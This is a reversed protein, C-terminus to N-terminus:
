CLILMLMREKEDSNNNKNNDKNNNNSTTTSAPRHIKARSSIKERKKMRIVPNDFSRRKRQSLSVLNQMIPRAHKHTHAHAFRRKQACTPPSSDYAAKRNRAVAKRTGM